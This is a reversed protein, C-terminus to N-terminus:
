AEFNKNFLFIENNESKVDINEQKLFIQMYNQKKKTTYRLSPLRIMQIPTEEYDDVIYLNINKGELLWFLFNELKSFDGTELNLIDPWKKKM